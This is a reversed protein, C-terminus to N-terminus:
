LAQLHKWCPQPPIGKDWLWPLTPNQPLLAGPFAVSGELAWHSLMKPPQSGMGLWEWGPQSPKGAWVLRPHRGEGQEAEMREGTRREWSLEALVNRRAAENATSAFLVDGNVGFYNVAILPNVKLPSLLQLHGWSFAAGCHQPPPHIGGLTGLVGPHPLKPFLASSRCSCPSSSSSSPIHGLGRCRSNQLFPQADSQLPGAVEWASAARKWLFGWSKDGM